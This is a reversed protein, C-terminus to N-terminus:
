YTGMGSLRDHETTGFKIVEYDDSIHTMESLEHRFCSTGDAWLLIDESSTDTAAAQRQAGFEQAQGLAYMLLQKNIYM